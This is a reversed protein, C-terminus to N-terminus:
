NGDNREKRNRTQEVGKVILWGGLLFFFMFPWCMGTFFPIIGDEDFDCTNAINRAFAYSLGGIFAYFVIIILILILM